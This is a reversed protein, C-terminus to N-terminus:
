PGVPWSMKKFLKDVQPGTLLEGRLAAEHATSAISELNTVLVRAVDVSVECGGEGAAGGSARIALVFAGWLPVVILLGGLFVGRIMGLVSRAGHTMKNM